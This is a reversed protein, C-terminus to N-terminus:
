KLNNLYLKLVDRLADPKIRKRLIRKDKDLLYIVPLNNTPYIKEFDNKGSPDALDYWEWHQQRVFQQWNRYQEDVSVAVAQVGFTRADLWTQYVQPMVEMCHNCLPSYFILLTLKGGITDLKVPKKQEDSLELTPAKKGTLVPKAISSKYELRTLTAIDLWPTEKIKLYKDVMHVFIQDAGPAENMEFSQVFHLVAFRYFAGDKPMLQVVEDVAKTISDPVPTVFRDFYNDFFTPWFANNLLSEDKFDTYDWYHRRMWRRYVPNVQGKLTPTVSKPPDPPRVSKLMRGYLHQPYTSIFVRAMSDISKYYGDIEIEIPKLSKPDSNTADKVMDYMSQRAIIKAEIVQRQREFQFYAANEPSNTSTLEPTEDMKGTISFTDSSAPLIFDFLRAGNAAVFCMGPQLDSKTFSFTGQQDVSVSDLRYTLGDRYCGIYAYSAPFGTIQFDIKATKQAFLTLQCCMVVGILVARHHPM